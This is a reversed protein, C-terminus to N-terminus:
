LQSNQSKPNYILANSNKKKQKKTKKTFLIKRYLWLAYYNNHNKGRSTKGTLNKKKKNKNM